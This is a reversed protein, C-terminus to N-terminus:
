TECVDWSGYVLCIKNESTELVYVFALLKKVM